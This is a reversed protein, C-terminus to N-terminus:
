ACGKGIINTDFINEESNCPNKKDNSVFGPVSDSIKINKTCNENYM